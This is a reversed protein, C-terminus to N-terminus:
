DNKIYNKKWLEFFVGRFSPCKILVDFDHEMPDNSLNDKELWKILMTKSFSNIESLSSLKYKEKEIIDGVEIFEEMAYMMKAEQEQAKEKERRTLETTAAEKASGEYNKLEDDSMNKFMNRIEEAQKRKEEEADRLAKKKDYEAYDKTIASYILAQIESDTNEKYKAKVYKINAEVKGLSMTGFAPRIIDRVRDINTIGNEKLIETIKVDEDSYQEQKVSINNDVKNFLRKRLCNAAWPTPSKVTKKREPDTLVYVIYKYIDLFSGEAGPNDIYYNICKKITDPAIKLETRLWNYAEQEEATLTAFFDIAQIEITERDKLRTVHFAIAVVRRKEKIEEFDVHINCMNNESIRSKDNLKIGNIDSIMTTLIRRKFDRYESYEGKTQLREKLDELDMTFYVEDDDKLNMMCIEYFKFTVAYALGKVAQLRYSLRAKDQQYIKLLVPDITIEVENDNVQAYAILGTTRGKAIPLKINERLAACAENMTTYIKNTKIGFTEAYSKLDFRYTMGAPDHEDILSYLVRLTRAANLPLEMQAKKVLESAVPVINEISVEKAASIAKYVEPTIITTIDKEDTSM